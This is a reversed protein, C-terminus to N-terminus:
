RVGLSNLLRWLRAAKFQFACVRESGDAADLRGDGGDDGIERHESLLATTKM